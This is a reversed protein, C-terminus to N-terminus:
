FDANAGGAGNEEKRRRSQGRPAADQSDRVESSIPRMLLLSDPQLLSLLCPIVAQMGEKGPQQSATAKEVLTGLAIAEAM